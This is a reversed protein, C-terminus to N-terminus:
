PSKRRRIMALGGMALLSLTAPEPVVLIGEAYNGVSLSPLPTGELTVRGISYSNEGGFWVEDGVVALGRAYIDTTMDGLPTGDISMRHIKNYSTRGWWWVEDGVMAFSQAHDAGIGIGPLATGDFTMRNIAYSTSGGFWVEQAGCSEHASCLTVSLLLVRLFLVPLTGNDM